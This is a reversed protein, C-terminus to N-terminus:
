MARTEKERDRQRETKRERHRERDIQRDRDIAARWGREGEGGEREGKDLHLPTARRTAMRM